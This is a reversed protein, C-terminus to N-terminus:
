GLTDISLPQVNIVIKEGCSFTSSPSPSKNGTKTPAKAVKKKKLDIIPDTSSFHYFFGWLFHPFLIACIGKPKITFYLKLNM